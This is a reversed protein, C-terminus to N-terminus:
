STKKTSIGCLRNFSFFQNNSRCYDDPSIIWGMASKRERVDQPEVLGSCIIKSKLGDSFEPIDSYNISYIDASVKRTITMQVCASAKKNTLNTFECQIEGAFNATCDYEMSALAIGSALLFGTSLALFSTKVKNM